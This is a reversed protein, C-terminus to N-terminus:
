RRRCVQIDGGNIAQGSDGDSSRAIFNQNAFTRRRVAVEINRLCDAIGSGPLTVSKAPPSEDASSISMMASM